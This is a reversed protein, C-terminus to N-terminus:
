LTERAAALPFIPVAQLIKATRAPPADGRDHGALASGAPPANHRLLRRPRNAWLNIQV